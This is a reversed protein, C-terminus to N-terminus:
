QNDSIMQFSFFFFKVWFIRKFGKWSKVLLTLLACSGLFTGFAVHCAMLLKLTFTPSIHRDNQCYWLLYGISANYRIITPLFMTFYEQNNTHCLGWKVIMSIPFHSGWCCSSYSLVLSLVLTLDKPRTTDHVFL